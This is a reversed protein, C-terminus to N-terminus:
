LCCVIPLELSRSGLLPRFHVYNPIFQRVICNEKLGTCCQLLPKVEKPSRPVTHLYAEHIPVCAECCTCQVFTDHINVCAEWRICFSWPHTWVSQLTYILKMHTYKRKVSHVCAKHIHVCAECRSRLNWPYECVCFSVSHEYIHTVWKAAHIIAEHSHVCAECYPIYLFFIPWTLM